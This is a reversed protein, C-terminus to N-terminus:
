ARDRPMRRRRDVARRQGRASLAVLRNSGRAELLSDETLTGPTVVRVVGRKVVAKYGRKKAEAPDELQDCVAVRHGLRILKAIYADVAHAPM